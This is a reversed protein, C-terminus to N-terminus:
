VGVTILMSMPYYIIVGATRSECPVEFELGKPQAPHQYFPLPNEITFKDPDKSFMFAVGQGIYPTVGSDANLEPAEVIEKLRPSNDLIWKMISGVAVGGILLPTNALYLFADTPLALIDPKEVSKTLVATYAQMANVDALVEMPSKDVWRTSTGAANLPLTFLPVDNSPSLVGVLNNEEDGAWAIMNTLRDIADKANAGRRVDLSKGAYRSARMEQVSYGYSDGLSKIHATSPIGKTDVRPLDTAYNQIIKAVGSRDYSYFTITEAGPDAESSTPFLKLANFDPYLRDYTKTKIFDLERAFFVSADEMSDFRLTKDDVLSAPIRSYRFAEYDLQDFSDSPMVPNYKKSM